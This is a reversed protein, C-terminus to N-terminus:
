ATLTPVISWELPEIEQRGIKNPVPEHLFRIALSYGGGCGETNDHNLQFVENVKLNM